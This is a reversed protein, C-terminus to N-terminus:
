FALVINISDLASTEVFALHQSEAFMFAEDTNVERLHKLDQKNGILMVVINPDAHERLEEYWKKINWFSSKRSIDYILLAGV